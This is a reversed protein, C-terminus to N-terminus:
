EKADGNKNFRQDRSVVKSKQQGGEVVTSKRGGVKFQRMFKGRMSKQQGDNVETSWGIFCAIRAEKRDEGSESCLLM